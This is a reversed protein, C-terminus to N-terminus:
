TQPAAGAFDFVLHDGAVTLTCPVAFFTDDFETWSTWHYTGDAIVAIRRRMEAETLDRIARLSAEFTEVGVGDVLAALRENAFHAGAVLGRLDMEVLQAMRLN